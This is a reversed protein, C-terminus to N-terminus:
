VNPSRKKSDIRINYGIQTKQAVLIQLVQTSIKHMDTSVM